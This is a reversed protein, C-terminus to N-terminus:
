SFNKQLYRSLNENVLRETKKDLDTFFGNIDTENLTKGDSALRNIDAVIVSKVDNALSTYDIKLNPQPLENKLETYIANAEKKAEEALSNFAHTCENEIEGKIQTAEQLIKSLDTSLLLLVNKYTELVVSLNEKVNQAVKELLSILAKVETIVKKINDDAM